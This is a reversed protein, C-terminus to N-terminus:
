SSRTSENGNQNEMFREFVEISASLADVDDRVNQVDHEMNSLAQSRMKLRERMQKLQSEILQRPTPERNLLSTM